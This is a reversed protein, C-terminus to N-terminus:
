RNSLWSTYASQDICYALAIKVTPPDIKIWLRQSLVATPNTIQVKILEQQSIGPLVLGPADWERGTFFKGSKGAITMTLGFREAIREVIDLPALDALPTECLDSFVRFAFQVEKKGKEDYLCVLDAYERGTKVYIVAVAELNKWRVIGKATFNVCTDFVRWAPFGVGAPPVDWIFQPILISELFENTGSDDPPLSIRAPAAAAESIRSLRDQPGVADTSTEPKQEQDEDEQPIYEWKLGPGVKLTGHPGLLEWDALEPLDEDGSEEPEMPTPFVTLRSNDSLLVQLGYAAIGSMVFPGAASVCADQEVLGGAKLLEGGPAQGAPEPFSDPLKGDWVVRPEKGSKLLWASGRVSLVCTGEVRNGFKPIAYERPVGFHIVLEDAYSLRAFLFPEGVLQQLIVAQLGPLDDTAKIPERLDIATGTM